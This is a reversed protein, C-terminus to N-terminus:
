VPTHAGNSKKDEGQDGGASAAAPADEPKAAAPAKEGKEADEDDFEKGDKETL